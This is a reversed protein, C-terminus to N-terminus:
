TTHVSQLPAVKGSPLQEPTFDASCCDQLARFLPSYSFIIPSQDAHLTELPPPIWVRFTTHVSQLPAVKGSPLQEPTFGASCCDQLVSGQQSFSQTIPTQDAHLTEQPPPTWVRFTTHVSQLPAVKGSPLQEPTFGASCCDQLVSGQQSFSQTIPSQDSHLTEQPPPIWVRFTTHVSQLPAVKGSPLQEPTFGASCCDQLVSGQQSFSQTIPAQEAHQTEQPPPIWVRFTTHVSQLPAVKGSPLQEP